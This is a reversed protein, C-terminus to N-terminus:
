LVGGLESDMEVSVVVETKFAEGDEDQHTIREVRWGKAQLKGAVREVERIRKVRENTNM